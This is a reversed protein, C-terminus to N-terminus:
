PCMPGWIGMRATRARDEAARMVADFRDNPAFLVAVALGEQVLVENVFVGDRTWMARLPRDFRDRDERDAALWVLDGSSVLSGVRETAERAGCEDPHGDRGLEPADINLLRVRISGGHPISGGPPAIVRITDGDVIRDVVAAEADGPVSPPRTDTGDSGRPHTSPATAPVEELDDQPSTGTVFTHVVFTLLVLMGAAALGGIVVLLAPPRPPRKRPAPQSTTM